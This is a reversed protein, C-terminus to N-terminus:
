IGPANKHTSMLHEDTIEVNGGSPAKCIFRM